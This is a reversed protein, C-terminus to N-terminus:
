EFHLELAEASVALLGLAEQMVRDHAILSGAKFKEARGRDLARRGRRSLPVDPVTGTCKANRNAAECGEEMFFIRTKLVAKRSEAPTAAVAEACNRLGSLGGPCCGCSAVSSRM